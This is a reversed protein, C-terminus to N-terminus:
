PQAPHSFALVMMDARLMNMLIRVMRSPHFVIAPFIVAPQSVAGQVKSQCRRNAALPSPM